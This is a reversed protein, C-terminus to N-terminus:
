FNTKTKRDQALKIFAKQLIESLEEKVSRLVTLVFDM